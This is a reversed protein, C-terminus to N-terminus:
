QEDGGKEDKAIDASSDGPSEAPAAASATSPVAEHQLDGLSTPHRAHKAFFNTMFIDYSVRLRQAFACSFIIAAIIVDVVEPVFGYIQLNVGGVQLFSVFIGAVVVGIPHTMGLLAVAIGTFGTGNVADSIYIFNSTSSTYVIAGGLGALAGAIVMSIVVSRKENIGAYRAADRNSGCTRLEYGFTTRNVIFWIVVGMVVAIIFGLNAGAGLSPLLKDLGAKPLISDAPLTQTKSESANYVLPISKILISVMYTGIYNMMIGSIIVNVNRYANLLGPLLAWIGGALAGAILAFLWSWSGAFPYVLHITLIAFFGGVIYQGSAGINLTGTKMAFAISLGCMILPMSYYCIRAAAKVFGTLGFGGTIITGIAPFAQSANCILLIVLGIALGIIAAVIASLISNFSPSLLVRKGVSNKKKNM